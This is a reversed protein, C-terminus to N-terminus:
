PAKPAPAAPTDTPTAPKEEEKKEALLEARDKLVADLNWKSMVYIWNEFAKETALKEELKKVKEAHEKDLREKDEPKEDKGPAREKTIAASVGIKVWCNEDGDKRGIKLQYKFGDFTEISATVAKDLGVTAPDTSPALVDNFSAYSFFSGLASVKGADLVEGAKANALTFEATANTRSVAWGNTIGGGSVTASELNEIKLFDKQLWTEAKPELQSLADSVVGVQKADNGVMLYRGNPIGGDDGGFPSPTSAKGFLKKGLLLSRIAKGDKDALEVLTGSDKGAGPAVLQLRPLLSPGVEERQVFKLDLAQRLFRSIEEFNAPYDGREKVSWRDNVKVLNLTNSADQITLRAVDNVPFDGLVKGGISAGAHQYSARNRQFVVLAVVGLALGAVILLLFPKRNM